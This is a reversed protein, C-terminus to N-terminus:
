QAPQVTEMTSITFRIEESAASGTWVGQTDYEPFPTATVIGGAQINAQPLSGASSNSYRVQVRYDQGPVLGLGQLTEANIEIRM